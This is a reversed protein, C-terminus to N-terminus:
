FCPQFEEEMDRGNILYRHLHPILLAVRLERSRFHRVEQQVGVSERWGDICLVLCKSCQNMIRTNFSEWWAADTPLGHRRAAEHCMAIPSVVCEGAKAIAALARVAEDYRAQEVAKDPHSYPSALYIM